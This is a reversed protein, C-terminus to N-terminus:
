SSEWQLRRPNFGAEEIFRQQNSKEAFQCQLHKRSDVLYNTRREAMSKDSVPYLLGLHTCKEGNPSEEYHPSLGIESIDYIDNRAAIV